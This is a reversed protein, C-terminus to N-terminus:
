LRSLITAVVFGGFFLACLAVMVERWLPPKLERPLVRRNVVLTHISLFVFNLGAVNAGIVVLTLPQALNLAICGWVVFVALITYYMRRVDVGSRERLRASGSWLMDTLTRVLGDSQGLQTKFLVWFGTMLTLYWFIRGHREAIASAQMDAVAWGGMTTGPPVFELSMVTVLMMGVISGLAFVAWQDVNLFRFWDNWRKLSRDTVIFVNGQPSLTVPTGTASPIYGVTAGMAFGKDRMWNTMYANSVGGLGSYAAFAGLLLWDGGAPLSGFSVFGGLIGRWSETSVMTLDVFLLYGFVVSMLVWMALELNREIRRGVVLILVCLGFTLYGLLKVVGADDATPIRGLVLAAIATASALAWGPWGVQLFTLLGYLSSWFRPGPWTRMFGVMIPEGTYMTYRAMEINIFVQLLVSVTTVWLLAPGYRAVVSPGLLWEGSGIAIGLGIIGPGITRLVNRFTFTPPAPLEAVGWPPLLGHPSAPGAGPAAPIHM